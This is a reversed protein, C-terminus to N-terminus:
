DQAGGHGQLRIFDLTSTRFARVPTRPASGAAPCRPGQEEEGAVKAGDEEGGAGPCLIPTSISGGLNLCALGWGLVVFPPPLPLHHTALPPCLLRLLLHSGGSWGLQTTRSPPTPVRREHPAARAAPAPKRPAVQNEKRPHYQLGGGAGRHLSDRPFLVTSKGTPHIGAPFVKEATDRMAEGEQPVASDQVCIRCPGFTAPTGLPQRVGPGAPQTGSHGGALAQTCLAAACVGTGAPLLFPPSIDVDPKELPPRDM